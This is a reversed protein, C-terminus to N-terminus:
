ANNKGRNALDLQEILAEASRAGLHYLAHCPQESLEHPNDDSRSTHNRIIVDHFGSFFDYVVDKGYTAEIKRLCDEIHKSNTM